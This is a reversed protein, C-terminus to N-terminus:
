PNSNYTGYVTAVYRICPITYDDVEVMIELM